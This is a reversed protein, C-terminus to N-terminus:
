HNGHMMQMTSQDTDDMYGWEQQWREMNTIETSQSSIIAASLEKIEQHKANKSALDAMQVAGQHHMIMQHIFEKDFEDGTKGVLSQNMESMTMDMDDNMMTGDSMQHQSSQQATASQKWGLVSPNLMGFIMAVHALVLFVGIWLAHTKKKERESADKKYLNLELLAIAGLPVVGALYTLVAIVDAAGRWDGGSTLPVVANFFLYVFVGTFYVGAAIGAFKSLTHVRGSNKRTFLLYLESIALIEALIVPIAMFLLLNWPPNSALLEMYHTMEM